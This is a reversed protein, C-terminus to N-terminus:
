SGGTSIAMARALVLAPRTGGAQRRQEEQDNVLGAAAREGVARQELGALGAAVDRALGALAVRLVTGLAALFPLPVGRVVAGRGDEGRAVRGGLEREVAEGRAPVAAARGGAPRM